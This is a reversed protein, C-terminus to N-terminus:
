KEVGKVGNKRLHNGRLCGCSRVRGTVLKTQRVVKYNGCVCRCLWYTHSDLDKRDIVLVTLRGFQNGQISQEENEQSGEM